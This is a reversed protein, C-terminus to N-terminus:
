PENISCGQNSARRHSVIMTRLPSGDQPLSLLAIGGELLANVTRNLQFAAPRRNTLSEYRGVYIDCNLRIEVDYFYEQPQPVTGDIVGGIYSAPMMHEHVQIVTASQYGNRAQAQLLPVGFSLTLFATLLTRKM